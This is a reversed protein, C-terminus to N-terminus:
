ARSKAFRLKIMGWWNMSPITLDLTFDGTPCSGDAMLARHCRPCHPYPEQNSLLARLTTARNLPEIDGEELPHYEVDELSIFPSMRANASM